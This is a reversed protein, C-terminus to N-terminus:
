TGAGRRSLGAAFSRALLFLLAGSAVFSPGYGILGILRGVATVGVAQGLFLGFAFIAISTGRAGPNMETAKTQLTNHFLYLGFGSLMFLPAAAQWFPIFALIGFCALLVAGASKVFTSEDMAALLRRVLLSYIFGGMGYCAMLSGTVAYSLSFKTRLYVGAFAFSGFFLGGELFVTVVVTRVWPDRLAEAYSKLFSTRATCPPAAAVDTAPSKKGAERVLLLGVILFVASLAYFVDRWSLAQALFGGLAPGLVQGMLLFGVFRGLTAQRTEYTTVDGIWALSLPVIAAAGMGAAFRLLTLARISPAFASGLSAAAALLTAVSIVRLKGFRDGVPGYVIQFLGYALSFATVVVAASVPEAGFDEAVKPLLADFLRLNAGSVFAAAALTHFTSREVLKKM